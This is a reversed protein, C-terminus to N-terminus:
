SCARPCDPDDADIRGDRDDDLGNDCREPTWPEGDCVPSCRACEADACDVRGDWNDDVGNTCDEPFVPDCATHCDPDCCM